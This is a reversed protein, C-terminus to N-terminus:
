VREGFYEKYEATAYIKTRAERLADHWEQSVPCAMASDLYGLFIQMRRKVESREKEEEMSQVCALCYEKTGTCILTYQDCNFHQVWQGGQAVPKFPGVLTTGCKTCHTPEKQQMSM